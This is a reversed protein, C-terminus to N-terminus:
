TRGRTYYEREEILEGDRVAELCVARVTDAAVGLALSLDQVTCPRRALTELIQERVRGPEMAGAAPTGGYPVVIRAPCGRRTFHDLARGLEAHELGRTGRVAPPRMVTNLDVSDVELSAAVTALAQLAPETDNVGAVLMVELQCRGRYRRCFDRLGDLMRSLTIEPHPRNIALFTEADAADLSPSVLDFGMADRAVDERWLLGGNTLLCLPLDTVRRLETVVRALELHLTPDGSGALTIVEPRPGRTIAQQVEAAVQQPDVFCEREVTLRDTAGLQCYTCDYCCVKHPVLDVGLSLGLRRSPVPGYAHRRRTM